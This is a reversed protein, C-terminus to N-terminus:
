SDNLLTFSLYRHVYRINNVDGDDNDDDISDEDDDDFM